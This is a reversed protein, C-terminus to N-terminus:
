AQKVYDDGVKEAKANEVEEKEKKIREIAESAIDQWNARCILVLYSLAHLLTALLFGGLLGTVSFDFKFALLAALPLGVLWYCALTICGAKDQLGLARIPGSLYGQLGDAYFNCATIIVLPLIMEILDEDTSFIRSVQHRLLILTAVILCNVSLTINLTLKFIRKALPVNNAGIANGILACTAEQMGLPFMFLFSIM